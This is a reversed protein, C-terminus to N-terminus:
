HSGCSEFYFDLVYVVVRKAVVVCVSGCKKCCVISCGDGEVVVVGAPKTM